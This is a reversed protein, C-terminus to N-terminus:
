VAIPYDIRPHAEYDVLQIDTDTVKYLDKVDPNIVLKPLKVPERQLQEKVLELQNLYIHADGITYIFEHAEYGLLHAFLELLICYQSINFVSGLPLDASRQDMKLSLLPKGDGNKRVYFQVMAHCAPLSGKGLMVNEKSSVSDFPIVQPLWNVMVHRSSYPNDRLSNFVRQLQDISEYHLNKLLDTRLTKAEESDADLGANKIEASIIENFREMKDSAIDKEEVDPFMSNALTPEMPIARWVQGYMFGVSDLFGASIVEKLKDELGEEVFATITAKHKEFFMDIDGQNVAWEDWIHVGVENLKKNSTSGSIFWLLEKMVTKISVKRTTVIPFGDRLDFRMMAGFISRRGKGTRDAYDVGKEYVHRLLDLYPKM